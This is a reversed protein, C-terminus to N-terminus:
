SHVHSATSLMSGVSRCRYAARAQQKDINWASPVRGIAHGAGTTSAVRKQAPKQRVKMEREEECAFSLSRSLRRALRLATGHGGACLPRKAHDAAGRLVHKGDM